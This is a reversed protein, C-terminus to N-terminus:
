FDRRRDENEIVHGNFMETIDAFDIGHKEINALRKAEDWEFAMPTHYCAAFRGLSDWEPSHRIVESIRSPSKFKIFTSFGATGNARIPGSSRSASTTNALRSHQRYRGCSPCATSFSPNKASGSIAPSANRIAPTTATPM